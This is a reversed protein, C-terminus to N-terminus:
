LFVNAIPAFITFNALFRACRGMVVAFCKPFSPFRFSTKFNNTDIDHTGKGKAERAVRIDEGNHVFKSSEDLSIGEM